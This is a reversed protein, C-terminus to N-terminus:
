TLWEFTFFKNYDKVFKDMLPSNDIVFNDLGSMKQILSNEDFDGSRLSEKIDISLHEYCQYAYRCQEIKMEYNKHEMYGKILISAGSVAILAIGGSAISSSIGGAAFMLALSNGIYKKKKYSKYAQKFGWAKKHYVRYDEKLQEVQEEFLDKSIHNWNFISKRREAKDKGYIYPKSLTM